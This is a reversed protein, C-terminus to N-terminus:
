YNAEKEQSCFVMIVPKMYTDPLINSILRVCFKVGTRLLTIALWRKGHDIPPELLPLSLVGPTSVVVVMVAM